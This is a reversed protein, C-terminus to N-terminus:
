ATSALSFERRVRSHAKAIAMQQRPDHTEIEFTGRPMDVEINVWWEGDHFSLSYPMHAKNVGHSEIEGIVLAQLAVSCHELHSAIEHMAAPSM